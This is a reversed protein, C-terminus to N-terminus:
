FIQYYNNFLKYFSPYVNNLKMYVKEILTIISSIERFPLDLYGIPKHIILEDNKGIVGYPTYVHGRSSYQSLMRLWGSHAINRYEHHQIIGYIILHPKLSPFIQEFYVIIM